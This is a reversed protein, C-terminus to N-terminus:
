QPRKRWSRAMLSSKGSQAIVIGAKDVRFEVKRSENGPDGQCMLHSRHRDEPEADLRAAWCKALKGASKMMDPTAIVADYDTWGGHDQHGHRAGV